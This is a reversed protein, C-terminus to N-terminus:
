HDLIDFAPRLLDQDVLWSSDAKRMGVLEGKQWPNRGSFVQTKISQKVLVGNKKLLWGKLMAFHYGQRLHDEVLSFDKISSYMLLVSLVMARVSTTRVVGSTEAKDGSGNVHPIPNRIPADIYSDMVAM